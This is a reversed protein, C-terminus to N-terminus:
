FLTLKQPLTCTLSAHHSVYAPISTLPPPLSCPSRCTLSAHHSVYNGATGESDKSMYHSLKTGYPIRICDSGPPILPTNCSLSVSVCVCVCACVCVDVPCLLIEVRALIALRYELQVCSYFGKTATQRNSALLTPKSINQRRASSTCSVPALTYNCNKVIAYVSM